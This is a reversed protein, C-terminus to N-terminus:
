EKLIKSNKFIYEGCSWVSLLVSGYILIMGLPIGTWHQIPDNLLLISIGIMQVAAKIKGSWGASIIVDKEAGLLRIGSIVFERAILVVSVWMPVVGWDTLVLLAGMVLLKDAIPDILKGFNSVCDWKRALKGDFFDTLSALIFVAGAWNNWGPFAAYYLIVIVPFLMIRLLTLINPLKM